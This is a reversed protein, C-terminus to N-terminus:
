KIYWIFIISISRIKWSLIEDVFNRVGDLRVDLSTICDYNKKNKLMSDGTVGVTLTLKCLSIALTLLKRHGNHIRDFTGGLAIHNFRPLQSLNPGDLYYLLSNNRSVDDCDKFYSEVFPLCTMGVEQFGLVKRENNLQASNFHSKLASVVRKPFADITCFCKEIDQLSIDLYSLVFCNIEISNHLIM